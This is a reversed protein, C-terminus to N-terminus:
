KSLGGPSETATRRGMANLTQLDMVELTGQLLDLKEQAM